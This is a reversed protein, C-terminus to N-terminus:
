SAVHQNNGHDAAGQHMPEPYCLELKTPWSAAYPPAVRRRHDFFDCVPADATDTSSSRSLVARVRGEASWYIRKQVPELELVVVFLIFVTLSLANGNELFQDM